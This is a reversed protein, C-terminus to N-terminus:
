LQHRANTPSNLITNCLKPLHKHAFSHEDLLPHESIALLIQSRDGTGLLKVHGYLDDILTSAAKDFSSVIQQNCGLYEKGLNHLFRDHNDQAPGIKNSNSSTGTYNSSDKNSTTSSQSDNNKFYAFGKGHKQNKSKSKSDLDLPLAHDGEQQKYLSLIRNM